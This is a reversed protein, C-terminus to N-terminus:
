KESIIESIITNKNQQLKFIFLRLYKFHECFTQILM